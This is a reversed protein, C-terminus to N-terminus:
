RGHGPGFGPKNKKVYEVLAKRQEPTLAAHVDIIAQTVETEVKEMRAKREAKHAEIASLDLTDAEFLALAKEMGDGKDRHAEEFAAFVRDRSAYVTTRAAGTVKAADLAEDIKATAMRKMFEGRDGGHCGFGGGKRAFATGAVALVSGAILGFVGLKMVGRRKM